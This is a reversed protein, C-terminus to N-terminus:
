LSGWRCRLLTAHFPSELGGFVHLPAEVQADDLRKRLQALNLLRKLLTSGLEKETVGITDFARLRGSIEPSLSDFGHFRAKGPRKLLVVSGLHPRTAFFEQADAIQEEYTMGPNDWSVVFPHANMDLNDVTAEYEERSWPVPGENEGGFPGGPPGGTQEYWGNDIFLASHAAYRSTEFHSFLGEHNDLLGHHIDYASILLAEDIRWTLTASHIISCAVPRSTREDKEVAEIPGLAKSSLAPILLPTEFSSGNRAVFRRHRVSM